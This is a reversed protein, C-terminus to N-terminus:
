TAGAGGMDRLIDAIQTFQGALPNTKRWVMGITRTPRPARMRALSVQASRTEIPA